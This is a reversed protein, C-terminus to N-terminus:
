SISVPDVDIEIEVGPEGRTRRFEDRAQKVTRRLATGSEDIARSSRVLLHYRIRGRLKYLVAPAPGLTEVGNGQKILSRFRLAAKAVKSEEKGAFKVLVFRAYPPFNASERRQLEEEALKLWDQELVSQLVPHEPALTQLLVKGRRGRRGARGSAQILLAAGREAARFDPYFLETDASVVGVLHVGPFDLGKAVMQTGLLIDYDGAAFAAIMKGHAGQRSTTDLDMRLLRADPFHLALEEELRQTGIGEYVFEPTRCRPCTDPVEERSDCYHCRLNRGKRHYTLSVACDDCEPIFGCRRCILFPAYGRRNQLLIAQAGNSLVTQIEAVLEGSLPELKKDDEKQRSIIHIEPLVSGGVRDPLKLLEYKGQRAQYLTEMSPTASGLLAVAGEFHARVLAADRAHYHPAPEEQKYSAEQEEDIVVLGLNALPAFVASRAGIVVPYDGRLIGRWLDYRVAPSQGSHQIAVRDGFAAHFRAWVHPTLAIEPVLVLVTRGARLVDKIAEIYVQTKGSGTVGYLLFAKFKEKSLAPKIKSLANEQAETLREPTSIEPANERSPEWRSVEELRLQLIGANLLFGLAQRRATSAGRLLETRLIGDPGAEMVDRLVRQQSRKDLSVLLASSDESIKNAGLTVFAEMKSKIRPPLLVPRLSIIGAAKLRRVEPPLRSIGLARRLTQPTLPGSKLADVVRQADAHRSCYDRWKEGAPHKELVFRQQEDLTIGAPLAAKLVDGWPCLYYDAMWRTFRLLGASFIPKSDLIGSVPKTARADPTKHIGVLFGTVRRHGFSVLVRQGPKAHAIM